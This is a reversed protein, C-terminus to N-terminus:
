HGANHRKALTQAAYVSRGKSDVRCRNIRCWEFFEEPDIIVKEVITGKAEVQKIAAQMRKLWHDYDPQFEPDIALWRPWDEKNMWAVAMAIMKTM